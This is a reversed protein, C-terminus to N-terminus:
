WFRIDSVLVSSQLLRARAHEQLFVSPLVPCGVQGLQYNSKMTSSNRVAHDFISPLISNLPEDMEGARELGTRRSRGRTFQFSNDIDSVGGLETTDLITRCNM